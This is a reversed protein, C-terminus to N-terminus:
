LRTKTAVVLRRVVLKRLIRLGDVVSTLKTAGRRERYRIPMWHPRHGAAISASFVEAEIEFGTSNLRLDHVLDRRMLWCGSCVDAAHYRNLISAEELLGGLRDGVVLSETSMLPVMQLLAEPPYSGDADIMAMAEWTGALFLDVATRFAAGKGRGHQIVVEVGHAGAIGVTGDTSRGDVVVLDFGEFRADDLIEPLLSALGVEEDLTPLVLLVGM